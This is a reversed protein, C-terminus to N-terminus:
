EAQGLHVRDLRIKAICLSLLLPLCISEPRLGSINFHFREGLSPRLVALMFNKITGNLVTVLMPALRDDM